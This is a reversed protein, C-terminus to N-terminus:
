SYFGSTDPREEPRRVLRYQRRIAAIIEQTLTQLTSIDEKERSALTSRLVDDLYRQIDACNWGEMQTALQSIFRPTAEKNLREVIPSNVRKEEVFRTLLLLMKEFGLRIIKHRTVQNPLQTELCLELRGGRILSSPIKSIDMCTVIVCIESRHKNELGDLLTLFSRYTDAYEFLNDVDDIFVVAPANQCAKSLVDTLTLILEKGTVGVSGDVLYFRGRLRYALWRGISTKGTGPPGALVIGKKLPIQDSGFEIPNIIATEIAALITEMGILNIAPITEAVTEDPNLQSGCLKTIAEKFRVEKEPASFTQVYNIIQILQGPKTKKALPLFKDAISPDFVRHLLFAIDETTVEHKISWYKNNDLRVEGESTTVILQRKGLELHEIFRSLAYRPFHRHDIGYDEMVEKVKDWHRIYIWTFATSEKEEEELCSSLHQYFNGPKLKDGGTLSINCLDITVVQCDKYGDLFKKVILHKGTEREGQMIIAPFGRSLKVLQQYTREQGPTLSLLM